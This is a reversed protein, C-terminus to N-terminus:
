CQSPGLGDGDGAETRKTDYDLRPIKRTNAGRILPRLGDLRIGNSLDRFTSSLFTLIMEGFITPPPYFPTRVGLFSTKGSGSTAAGFRESPASIGAPDVHVFCNGVKRVWQNRKQRPTKM